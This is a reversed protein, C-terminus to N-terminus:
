HGHGEGLEGRQLEARLTFGGASVIREGADVGATIEVFHPDQRGLRVPRPEFGEPTEVFLVPVEGIKQLASVPVAGPVDARATEVLGTVFLGPRWAGDPNEVVARM